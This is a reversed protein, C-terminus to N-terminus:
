NREVNKYHRVAGAFLAISSFVLLLNESTAAAMLFVFSGQFCKEAVKESKVVKRWAWALSVRWGHRAIKTKM